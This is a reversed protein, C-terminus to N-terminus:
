NFQHLLLFLNASTHSVGSIALPHEAAGEQREWLRLRQRGDVSIGAGVYDRNYLTWSKFKERGDFILFDFWIRSSSSSSNTNNFIRVASQSLRFTSTTRGPVSITFMRPMKPLNRLPSTDIPSLNSSDTSTLRSIRAFNAAWRRPCWSSNRRSLCVNTILVRCTPRDILYQLGFSSFLLIIDRRRRREREGSDRIQGSAMRRRQTQIHTHIQVCEHLGSAYFFFFGVACRRGIVVLWSSTRREVTYVCLLSFNKQSRTTTVNWKGIWMVAVTRKAPSRWVAWAVPDPWTNFLYPSPSGDCM